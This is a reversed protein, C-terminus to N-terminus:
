FQKGRNHSLVFLGIAVNSYFMTDSKLNGPNTIIQILPSIPINDNVALDNLFGNMM